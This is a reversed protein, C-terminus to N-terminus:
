RPLNTYSSGSHRMGLTHGMEHAFSDMADNLRNSIVIEDYRKSTQPYDPLSPLDTSLEISGAVGGDLGITLNPVVCIATYQPFFVSAPASAVAERTLKDMNLGIGSLYDARNNPLTYWDIVDGLVNVTNGSVQRYYHDLSPYTNPSRGNILQLYRNRPKPDPTTNPSPSTPTYDAFRVLLTIMRYQGTFPAVAPATSDIAISTVIIRLQDPDSTDEFGDVIVHKRDLTDIGGAENLIDPDAVLVKTQKDLDDILALGDVDNGSDEDDSCTYRIFSVGTFTDEAGPLAGALAAPRRSAGASAAIADRPVVPAGILAVLLTVSAAGRFQSVKRWADIRFFTM